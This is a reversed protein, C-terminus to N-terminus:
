TVGTKDAPGDSPPAHRARKAIESFTNRYAGPGRDWLVSSLCPVWLCLAGM